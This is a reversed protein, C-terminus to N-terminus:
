VHARGIEKNFIGFALAFFFIFAYPWSEIHNEFVYSYERKYPLFNFLSFFYTGVFIAVVNKWSDSVRFSEYMLGAFMAVLSVSFLKRDSISARYAIYLTLVLGIIGLVIIIPM